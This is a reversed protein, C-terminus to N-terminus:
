QRGSEEQAITSWLSLKNEAGEITQIDCLKLDFVAGQSRAIRWRIEQRIEAPDYLFLVNTPHCHVELVVTRGALQPIVEEPDTWPSVHFHRLGPLQAIIGAKKNLNECGHYYVRRFLAAIRENYPHVFEAYMAPSLSAASQAHCYVWGGELKHRLSAPIEDYPQHLGLSAEADYAGAAERQRHYAVLGTTIHDMLRHVFQPRDVVDYLLNEIGRLRV